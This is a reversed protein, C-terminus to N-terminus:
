ITSPALPYPATLHLLLVLARVATGLNSKPHLKTAITSQLQIPWRLLLHLGWWYFPTTHSLPYSIM